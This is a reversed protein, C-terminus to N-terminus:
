VHATHSTAAATALTAHDLDLSHAGDAPPLLRRKMKGLGRRFERYHLIYIFPNLVLNLLAVLHAYDM